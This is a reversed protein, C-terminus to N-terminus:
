SSGGVTDAHSCGSSLASNKLALNLYGQTLALNSNMNSLKFFTKTKSRKTYSNIIPLELFVFFIIRSFAKSCLFFFSPNFKVGPSASIPRRVVPGLVLHIIISTYQHHHNQHHHHHSPPPHPHHHHYSIIIIFIIRIKLVSFIIYLISRVINKIKRETGLRM